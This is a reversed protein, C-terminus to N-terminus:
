FFVVISILTSPKEGTCFLKTFPNITQELYPERTKPDKFLAIYIGDIIIIIILLSLLPTKICRYINPLYINYWYLFRYSVDSTKKRRLEPKLNEAERDTHRHEQDDHHSSFLFTM